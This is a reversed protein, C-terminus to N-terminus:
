VERTLIELSAVEVLIAIRFSNHFNAKGLHGVEKLLRADLKKSWLYVQMILASM